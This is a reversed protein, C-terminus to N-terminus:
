RRGDKKKGSHSPKFSPIFGDAYILYQRWTMRNEKKRLSLKKYEKDSFPIKITVVM